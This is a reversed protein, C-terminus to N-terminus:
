ALKKSLQDISKRKFGLRKYILGMCFKPCLIERVSFNRKYLTRKYSDM